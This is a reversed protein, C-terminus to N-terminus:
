RSSPRDLFTAATADAPLASPVTVWRGGRGAGPPSWRMLRARTRGVYTVALRWLTGDNEIVRPNTPLDGKLERGTSTLLSVLPVDAPGFMPREVVVGRVLFRVAPVRRDPRTWLVRGPRVKAGLGETTAYVTRGGNWWVGRGGGPALGILGILGPRIVPAARRGPACWFARGQREDVAWVGGQGGVLPLPRYGAPIGTSRASPRMRPDYFQISFPTGPESDSMAAYGGSYLRPRYSGRSPIRRVRDGDVLLFSESPPLMGDLAKGYKELTLRRGRVDEVLVEGSVRLRIEASGLVTAGSLQREVLMPPIMM